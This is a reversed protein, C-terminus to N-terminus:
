RKWIRSMDEFLGREIGKRLECFGEGRKVMAARPRVSVRIGSLFGLSGINSGGLRPTADGLALECDKRDEFLDRPAQDLEGHHFDLHRQLVRPPKM